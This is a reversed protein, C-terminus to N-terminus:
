TRFVVRYYTESHQLALLVAGRLEADVGLDSARIEVGRSAPDPCHEAVVKRVTALLPEGIAALGGGLVVMAPSYANIM